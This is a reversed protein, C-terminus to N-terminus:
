KYFAIETLQAILLRRPSKKSLLLLNRINLVGLLHKRNLISYPNYQGSVIKYITISQKRPETNLTVMNFNNM